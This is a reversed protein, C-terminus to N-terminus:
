DNWGGGTRRLLVAFFPAGIVATLISLPIEASTVSRALTDIIVLYAAGLFFATPVLIRHNPGTLMRALHPIVLGVFGIIGCLSVAAASIVTSALIVLFRLLHIRVGMSRAEEDSLSLINLQWRLALIMLSGGLLMPLGLKLDSMGTGSLSGMLWYVITPLKEEPDAVYKVFSILAQFVAGVIVGSLVLMHVAKNKRTRSVFLTAAMAIFGFVISLGQIAAMNGSILIGLAAGLGAGYSVGLIHASVLPNSFLAQMSAGSVSLGAGVAAALLIRPLRVKMVVTYEIDSWDQPLGRLVGQFIHLVRAAPLSYRGVALSVVMVLVTGLICLGPLIWRSLKGKEM